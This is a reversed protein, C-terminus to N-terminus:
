RSVPRCVRRPREPRVPEVAAERDATTGHRPAAGPTDSADSSYGYGYGYIIVGLIRADIAQLSQAALRLQERKTSGHKTVLIAGDAHVALVATDTVPLLPPADIIVYDYSDRLDTMM